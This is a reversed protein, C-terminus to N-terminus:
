PAIEELKKGGTEVMFLSVVLAVGCILGFALFVSPLGGLIVLNAVLIPGASSGLRLWATALGTGAARMRTPYIEPTYLYLLANTSGILAYALTAFCAVRVVSDTGLIAIAIFCLGALLYSTAAWKRRGLRDVLLACALTAIVQFVNTLSATRLATKLDLNYVTRYLTPLWNNLGNAVGYSCFWLAWVVLTRRRYFDSFLERWGAKKAPSPLAAIPEPIPSVRRPTSAEIKEIIREAEDARGRNILWRPSEPLFIVLIAIIIGPIGGILFMSKWGYTPVLWAGLQGTVMLGIPFIMEYLMFFRGRAKTPSLESIYVAAVPVEGGVGIGQIFRCLLLLEYHGSFMCGVAMISMVGISLAASRVRGIKEALSGFFLAGIFQGIYGISILWGIQSVSLGWAVKLVPLVFALSLADFADFFTASGMIVRAKMHWRSFPVNNMRAILSLARADAEPPRVESEPTSSVPIPVPPM